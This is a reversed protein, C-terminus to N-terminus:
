GAGVCARMRRVSNAWSRRWMASGSFRKSVRSCCQRTCAPLWPPANPLLTGWIKNADGLIIQAWFLKNYVHLLFL